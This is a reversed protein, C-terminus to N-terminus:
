STLNEEGQEGKEEAAKKEEDEKEEGKQEKKRRSLLSLVAGVLAIGAGYWQVNAPVSGIWSLCALGVGVIWCVWAIKNLDM